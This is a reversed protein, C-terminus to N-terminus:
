KNIDTILKKFGEVNDEEQVVTTLARIIEGRSLRKFSIMYRLYIDIFSYLLGSSKVYECTELVSALTHLAALQKPKIVHTKLELNNDGELLVHLIEQILPEQIEEDRKIFGKIPSEKNEITEISEISEVM